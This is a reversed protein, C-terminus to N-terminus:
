YMSSLFHLYLNSNKFQSYIIDNMKIFDLVIKESKFRESDYIEMGNIPNIYHDSQLMKCIKIIKDQGSNQDSSKYNLDSSKM